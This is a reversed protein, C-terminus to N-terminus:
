AGSTLPVIAVFRAGGGPAQEVTITGGHATIIAKAIYLGIGLGSIRDPDVGREFRGFVRDRDEAAVGPGHDTVALRAHGALTRSLEVKVPKGPAYKLANSLLNSIVQEFRHGDLRGTIASEIDLELPTNALEFQPSVRLCVEKVLASLDLPEFRLSLKSLDIRSTDLMEEVLDNIRLLQRELFLSFKKIQEPSTRSEGGQILMQAQLLMSTIPTKLEHSALSLFEDRRQLAHNADDYLRANEDALRALDATRERVRTELDSYSKKLMEGMAALNHALEGIEDNSSPLGHTEFQGHGISKAASNLSNLGRSLSRATLFALSLGVSEVTIVAITLITLVVRELFRSGEGLANSFDEELETLEENLVKIRDMVVAAKKEDHLHIADRYQNGTSVLEDLKLDAATWAQIAMNLEKVWYFRSLLDIMPDIDAPHIKGQLFGKRAAEFDPKPQSLALRSVHDGEPISLFEQYHKFDWEDRTSAYRQLSFVANKQAKSWLSEGGVFARVASLKGMAFRLTMLELFILLGMLGVVFYLRTAISIRRRPLNDRTSSEVAGEKENSDAQKLFAWGVRARDTKIM